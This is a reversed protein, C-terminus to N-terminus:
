FCFIENQIHHLPHLTGKQTQKRDAKHLQRGSYGYHKPPFSSTTVYRLYDLLHLRM